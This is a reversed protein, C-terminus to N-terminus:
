LKPNLTQADKKISILNYFHFFFLNFLKTFAECAVM